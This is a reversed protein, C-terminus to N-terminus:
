RKSEPIHLVHSKKTNLDVVRKGKRLLGHDFAPPMIGDGASERRATPPLL